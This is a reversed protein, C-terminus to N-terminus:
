ARLRYAARATNSFIDRPESGGALGRSVVWDVVAQVAVAHTFSVPYDSGFMLRSAGFTALANDYFPFFLSSDTGQPVEGPLGSIKMYFRELQALEKLADIWEATPTGTAVGTPKFLHDAVVNTRTNLSIWRALEVAEHLQGPNSCRILLDLTIGREGLLKATSKVRADSLLGVGKNEPAIMRAGRIRDSHGLTDLMTETGQPDLLDVGIVGGLVEPHEAAAELFFRAEGISDEHSDRAQVLLIGGFGSEKAVRVVREPSYDQALDPRVERAGQIVPPLNHLRWPHIHADIPTPVKLDALTTTMTSIM